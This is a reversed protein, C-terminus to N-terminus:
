FPPPAEGEEEERLSGFPEDAEEDERCPEARLSSRPLATENDDSDASADNDKDDPLSVGELEGAGAAPDSRRPSLAVTRTPVWFPAGAIFRVSATFVGVVGVVAQSSRTDAPPELVGPTPILPALTADAAMELTGRLSRTERTPDPCCPFCAM